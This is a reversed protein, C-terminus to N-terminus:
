KKNEKRKPNAPFWGKAVRERQEFIEKISWLSTFGLVGALVSLIVNEIALSIIIGAIGAALFAWWCKVGFYYESKIVIPHFIGIILFTLIGIVIGTFYM